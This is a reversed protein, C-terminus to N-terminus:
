LAIQAMNLLMSKQTIKIEANVPKGEKDVVSIKSWGKRYEEIGSKVRDNLYDKQENFYKLAYEERKM